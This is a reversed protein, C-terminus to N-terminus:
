LSLSFVFILLIGLEKKRERVEEIEKERLFRVLLVFRVLNINLLGM